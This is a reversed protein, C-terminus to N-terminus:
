ATSERENSNPRGNLENIGNSFAAVANIADQSTNTVMPHNAPTNGTETPVITAAASDPLLKPIGVTVCTQIINM